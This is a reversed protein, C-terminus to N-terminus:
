PVPSYGLGAGFVPGLLTWLAFAAFLAAALFRARSLDFSASIRDALLVVPVNALMMGLTTGIVVWVLQSAHAAALGVTAIQTKDGIEAMFFAILTILFPGYQQERKVADPEDAKDPILTWAAMVLFGIGIGWRLAEPGVWAAVTAGFLGALAHNLVTAVAIGLILPLPRKFRTALIFALLQTKDGIEALTVAVTSLLLADM